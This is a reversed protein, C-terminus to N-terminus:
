GRGKYRQLQVQSVQGQSLRPLWSALVWTIGSASTTGRQIQMARSAEKDDAEPTKTGAALRASWRDAKPKKQRWGKSGEKSPITDRAMERLFDAKHERPRGVPDNVFYEHAMHILM